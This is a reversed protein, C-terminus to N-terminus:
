SGTGAMNVKAQKFWTAGDNKDDKKVMREVFQETTPAMIVEIMTLVTDSLTIVPPAEDLEDVIDEKLALFKGDLPSNTALFPDAVYPALGLLMRVRGTGPVKILVPMPASTDALKAYEVPDQSQILCLLLRAENVQAPGIKTSHVEKGYVAEPSPLGV